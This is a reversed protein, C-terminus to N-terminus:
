LFQDGKAKIRSTTLLFVTLDKTPKREILTTFIPV